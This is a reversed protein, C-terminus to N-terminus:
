RCRTLRLATTNPTHFRSLSLVTLQEQVAWGLNHTGKRVASIDWPPLHLRQLLGDERGVQEASNRIELAPPLRNCPLGALM